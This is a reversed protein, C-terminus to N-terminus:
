SKLCLGPKDVNSVLNGHHNNIKTLLQILLCSPMAGLEVEMAVLSKRGVQRSDVVVLYVHTIVIYLNRYLTPVESKM